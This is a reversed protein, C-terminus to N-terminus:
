VNSVKITPSLLLNAACIAFAAADMVKLGRNLAERYTIDKILTATPDKAPDATYVGDINKAMM